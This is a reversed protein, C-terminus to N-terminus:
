STRRTYVIEVAKFPPGGKRHMEDHFVIEVMYRDGGDTRWM